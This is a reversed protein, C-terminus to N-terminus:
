SRLILGILKLVSVGNSALFKMGHAIQLAFLLQDVDDIPENVPQQFPRKRVVPDDLLPSLSERSSEPLAFVLQDKRLELELGGWLHTSGSM